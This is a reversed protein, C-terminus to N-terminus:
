GWRTRSRSQKNDNHAGGTPSIPSIQPYFDTSNPAAAWFDSLLKGSVPRLGGFYNIIPLYTQKSSAETPCLLRFLPCFPRIQPQKWWFNAVTKGWIRRKRWFSIWMIFVVVPFPDKNRWVEVVAVSWTWHVNKPPPTLWQINFLQNGYGCDLNCPFYM